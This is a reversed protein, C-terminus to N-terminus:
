YVRISLTIRRKNRSLAVLGPPPRNSVNLYSGTTEMMSMTKPMMEPFGDTNFAPPPPTQHYYLSPFAMPPQRPHMTPTRTVFIEPNIKRPESIPSRFFGAPGPSMMLGFPDEFGSLQVSQTARPSIEEEYSVM